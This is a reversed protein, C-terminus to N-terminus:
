IFIKELEKYIEGKLKTYENEYSKLSKLKEEEQVISQEVEKVEAEKGVVKKLQGLQKKKNDISKQLKEIEPLNEQWKKFKEEAQDVKEKIKAWVNETAVENGVYTGASIGM